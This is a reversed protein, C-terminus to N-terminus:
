AQRDRYGWPISHKPLMPEKIPNPPHPAPEVQFKASCKGCVYVTYTEDQVKCLQISRHQCEPKVEVFEIHHGKHSGCVCYESSPFEPRFEHGCFSMSM